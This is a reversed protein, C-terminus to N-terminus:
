SSKLVWLYSEPMTVAGLLAGCDLGAGDALGHLARLAHLPFGTAM